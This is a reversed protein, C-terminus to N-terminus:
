RSYFDKLGPPIMSYRVFLEEYVDADASPEVVEAEIPIQREGEAMSSFRGTGVWAAVAAGVVTADKKETVVVPMRCVDARLQNWLENKSGGGVVRLREPRFGTAETLIRLADRLQFCLGELAARYIHARTSTLGLGAITGRTAYKRTPGTGPVLSPVLTVGGSGPKLRRAEGIMTEYAKPRDAVSAYLNERVWELIGSGMMLLQPDYLGPVADVETLIGEEFAFDNTVPSSTRLMAIEWTGTSLVAEEETAGSGIPAFQTDHGSAVVPIGERLGTQEAAAATVKGIVDGPYALKPFFSEDVGVADLLEASWTVKELDLMMMTSAGTVDMSLEGCLRHSLLGAVMLWKDARDLAEPVNDRLWAIKYLTNFRIAQYGTINFLRRAGFQETLRRMVPETRPCQWCIVPYTLDGDATVPAGDAGWTAVTVAVVSETGVERVLERIADCVIGWLKDVDWVLWGEEGDQQPVAGNPQSASAVLRGQGDVAAATINTSGCDVVLVLEPM